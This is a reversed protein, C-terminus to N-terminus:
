NIITKIVKLSNRDRRLMFEKLYGAAILAKVFPMALRGYRKYYFHLRSKERILTKRLVPQGSSSRGALHIIKADPIIKNKLGLKWARYCLDTEEFYLFFTEDFGGLQLLLDRESFMAAGCVYDVEEVQQLERCVELKINRNYYSRFIKSLGLDFLLSLMRPYNGYSYHPSLANDYLNCGYFGRKGQDNEAYKYLCSVADNILRTDSNLLFIYKADSVQIGLNNAAGFGLNKDNSIVVVEKFQEKIAEVSGDTSANDVVIIEYQLGRVTEHISKICDVTLDRTNYSVIIISVDNM